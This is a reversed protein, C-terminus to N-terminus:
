NSNDLIHASKSRIATIVNEIMWDAADFQESHWGLKSDWYGPCKKYASNSFGYSMEVILPNNNSDFIFDYALCQANLRNNIDFAIKVCRIDLEEKAYKIKGSGSARFDNDRVLRKLGFAKDGVVIIRIDFDNNPIFDQFYVYGKERPSMRAYPPSCFLRFVGKGIELIQEKISGKKRFSEKLYHVKSFQSFGTSFAKHIIKSAESKTKILKVNASGAGGRLKFVKPFMTTGAWNLASTKDYFVYSAVFPAKISEFIYKQSVKDDFHWTTNFDPFVMKGTQLLAYLLRKAILVDKFIGHNHHWMLADCDKLQEIIDNRYCDVIKYSIDNEQCFRIWSDSFGGVEHHIGIKIM